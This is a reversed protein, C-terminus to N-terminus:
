RKPSIKKFGTYKQLVKPIEVSGDKQQYNELIALIMRGIAVATGNLIDVFGSENKDKYRIALRRAQYDTCTSVSHTERYRGEFPFWSNIDFKRAAPHGLDGSCMKTVQYPIGLAQVIKEELSLLYENEKLDAKEQPKIFSVMEVKDFQHVRFIGQTDKGYSGAERRFSSSYGVYRLPLKSGDLIENKHMPVLSHEATAVLVLNDKELLYMNQEGGKEMYGLGKMSDTSIMTPPIVPIFKEKTLMEMVFNVLALELLVGENKLYGFRSGSVKSATKTDIIDLSEGLEQYSKPKFTFKAPKGWKKVEINESEDKGFHVDEAPPNPIDFLLNKLEEEVANLDPEIKRLEEKIKRGKEVDYQNLKNKESRLEEIKGILDRRAKDVKLVREVIEADGNKSQVAKKIKDPNERLLNIDIM